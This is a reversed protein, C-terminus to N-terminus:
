KMVTIKSSKYIMIYIDSMGSLKYTVGLPTSAWLNLVMPRPLCTSSEHLCQLQQNSKWIIHLFTVIFVQTNVIHLKLVTRGDIRM